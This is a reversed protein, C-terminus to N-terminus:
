EISWLPKTYLMWRGLWSVRTRDRPRSSGRSFSIAVWELIRAQSFGISRTDKYAVLGHLRLLTLCLRIVLCCCFIMWYNRLLIPVRKYNRALTCRSSSKSPPQKLWLNNSCWLSHLFARILPFSMFKIWADAGWGWSASLKRCRLVPLGLRPSSREFNGSLAVQCLGTPFPQGTHRSRHRSRLFRKRRQVGVSTETNARLWVDEMLSISLFNVKVKVQSLRNPIPSKEQVLKRIKGNRDLPDPNKSHPWSCEDWVEYSRELRFIHGTNKKGVVMVTEDRMSKYSHWLILPKWFNLKEQQAHM